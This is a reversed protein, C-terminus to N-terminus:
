NRRWSTWCPKLSTEEGNISATVIGAFEERGLRESVALSNAEVRQELELLPKVADDCYAICTENKITEALVFEAGDQEVVGVEELKALTLVSAKAIISGEDVDGGDVVVPRARQDRLAELADELADVRLDLRQSLRELEDDFSM